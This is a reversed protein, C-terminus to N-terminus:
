GESHHSHQEETAHKRVQKAMMPEISAQQQAKRAQAEAMGESQSSLRQGDTDDSYDSM